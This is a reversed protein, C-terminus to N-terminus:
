ATANEVRFYAPVTVCPGRRSEVRGRAQWGRKFEHWDIVGGKGQAHSPGGRGASVGARASEASERIPRPIQAGAGHGGDGNIVDVGLSAHFISIDKSQRRPRSITGRARYAEGVACGAYDLDYGKAVTVMM